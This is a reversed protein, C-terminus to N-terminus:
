GLLNEKALTDAVDGLNLDELTSRTQLGTRVDWGRIEYFEDKMKEFEDRDLVMGKRSFPKGDKGPVLCEPNNFESKLPIEFNFAEPMDADRGTQGERALIARQLNFAREGIEYLDQEGIDQGTVAACVRNELTPDGVHDETTPSHLIPWSFDCVILCEKAYERDQIKAACLAKGEYTSFDAAIENGWFRKAVARFVESTMYHDQTTVKKHEARVMMPFGMERATWNLLPVGIEHLQQIPMRPELAYLLGTSIHLRPGYPSDEGTRIMYDTILKEADPGLEQAAKHTGEALVDGFGKRFTINGLLSEIFELSGLKSLPFGAKEDTLVGAKLTRSLWMIMTEMARTDIGYDDCMKTARFPVETVHGYHRQARVEYFGAAQCMYKGEQGDEARYNVRSCGNICGFCVNPTTQEQPLQSFWVGPGPKLERITKRLQRIAERDAVDVKGEGRVAVAKLHKSGMVAGLGSSGASDCDALLTAFRVVNEGAPGVAVVRFSAGLEEKLRERTGIAGLGKLHSADKLEVKDNDIVLTKLSDAKGHVVLGDYGAFKLQAGWAGGLNSYTFENLLPSKGSVQWRSGAFGPVGCVPGTMFVLRNEPDLADTQPSVEDWHIKAAIGRGGLFRDAYTETPETNITGSSLDVRLISGAYGQKESM